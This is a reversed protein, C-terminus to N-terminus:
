DYVSRRPGIDLLVVLQRSNDISYIIRHGGIRWRWRGELEGRLRTGLFLDAIIEDVARLAKGRVDAPQRKLMRLFRNTLAASYPM